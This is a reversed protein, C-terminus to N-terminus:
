FSRKRRRSRSRFRYNEDESILPSDGLLESMTQRHLRRERIRALVEAHKRKNEYQRYVFIGFVTAFTIIVLSIIQFYTNTLLTMAKAGLSALPSTEPANIFAETTAETNTALVERKLLYARGIFRDDYHYDIAAVANAPAASTLDYSIAFTADSVDTDKPLTIFNGTAFYLIDTNTNHVLITDQLIFNLDAETNNLAFSKFNRFGFEMMAKTDSYHTQKGNLVVTILEMDDKVGYTVLTNGALSTYGTKGAVAYEYYNTNASRLMGHHTYIALGEPNNKSAPLKYYSASAIELLTPNSFAARAILAFDYASTYHNENNLGSPNAFNSDTCGLEQAKQNMLVAFEEISGATYEALANAAENASKLLMAYLADRVSVVDGEDYGANSSGSEVNYVADHSFTLTEDLNKVNEIVILATLLKTISAPYYSNHINQGFLVAGTKKDMVIGAESQLSVNSPWAPAAYIHIFNLICLICILWLLRKFKM